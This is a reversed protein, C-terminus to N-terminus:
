RLAERPPEKRGIQVEPVQSGIEASEDGGEKGVIPSWEIHKKRKRKRTKRRKQSDDLNKKNKIGGQALGGRLDVINRGGKDVYSKDAVHMQGRSHKEVSQRGKGM